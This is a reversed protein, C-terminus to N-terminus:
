ELMLKSDTVVITDNFDMGSTVYGIEDSLVSSDDFIVKVTYHSDAKVEYNVEKSAGRSIDELKYNQKCVEITVKQINKSSVNKITVNGDYSNFCGAICFCISLFTFIKINKLIAM